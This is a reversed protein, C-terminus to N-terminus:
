LSRTKGCSLLAHGRGFSRPPEGEGVEQLPSVPMPVKKQAHLSALVAARGAGCGSSVAPPLVAAM